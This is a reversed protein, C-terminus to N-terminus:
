YQFGTDRKVWTAIARWQQLKVDLPVSANAPSTSPLRQLEIGDLSRGLAPAVRKRFVSDSKAGNFCIVQIQPHRQLFRSFDNPALTADDIDSDLSSARTCTELTDWLAVGNEKLMSCRASYPAARSIGLIEEMFPWFLNRPHAYYQVERLSVKGPMTGLILVRARPNALPPFSHIYSM